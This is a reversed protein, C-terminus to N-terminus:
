YRWALDPFQSVQRAPALANEAVDGAFPAVDSLAPPYSRLARCRASRAVMRSQRCGVASESWMIQFEIRDHEYLASCVAYARTTRATTSWGDGPQSERKCVEM